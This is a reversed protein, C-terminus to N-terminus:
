LLKEFIVRQENMKLSEYLNIANKNFSWVMLDIRKVGLERAWKEVENMLKKAIGNNRYEERVVVADIYATKMDVMGSKYKVSAFCIGIVVGKEEYAISIVDKDSLMELFTNRDYVSDVDMYMDPRADVHLKHLLNMLETICDYDEVRMDRIMNNYEGKLDDKIAFM